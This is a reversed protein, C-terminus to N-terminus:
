EPRNEYISRIASDREFSNSIMEEAQSIALQWSEENLSGQEVIAQLAAGMEYDSGITRLSRLAQDTVFESEPAIRVANILLSKMETDSGISEAAQFLARWNEDNMAGFEAITSLANRQEFDSGISRTAQILSLTGGASFGAQEIVNVILQRLEFDSGITRSADQLAIWNSDTMSQSNTIGSLALRAEMDSGISNTSEFLANTFTESSEVDNVINLVTVRMEMDSGIGRIVDVLATQSESGLTQTSVLKSVTLRMEMDSGISKHTELLDVIQGETLTANELLIFNYARSIFDSRIFALERIVAQPGTNELMRLVRTEANVGTSRFLTVLVEHFWVRAEEDFVSETGDIWYSTAISNGDAEILIRRRPRINESRYEFYGGNTISIIENERDNTEFGNEWEAVGEDWVWEHRNGNVDYTSGSWRGRRFVDFLGSLGDGQSLYTPSSQSTLESVDSSDNSLLPEVDLDEVIGVLSSDSFNATATVVPVTVTAAVSEIKMTPALLALLCVLSSVYVKSTRNFKPTSHIAASQLYLIRQKLRSTKGVMTFGWRFVARSHMREACNVLTTTIATSNRCQNLASQDALFESLDILRNRAIMFLPQFFFVCCLLQLAFLLQIDRHRVHALEHALLNRIEFEPLSENAWEPLCIENGVLTVPSETHRSWTLKPPNSMGANSSLQKLQKWVSNDKAVEHRSGLRRMAFRYGLLLRTGLLGSIAIWVLLLSTPLDINAILRKIPAADTTSIAETPDPIAVPEHALYTNETTSIASDLDLLPSTGSETALNSDLLPKTNEGLIAPTAPNSDAAQLYIVPSQPLSTPLLLLLSGFLAAKWLFARVEIRQILKLKEISWIAVLLCTSGFFFRLIQRWFEYDILAEIM